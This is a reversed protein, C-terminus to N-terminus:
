AGNKDLVRDSIILLWTFVYCLFNNKVNNELEKMSVVGGMM